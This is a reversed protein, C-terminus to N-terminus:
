NAPQPSSYSNRDSQDFRNGSSQFHSVTAWVLRLLLIAIFVTGGLTCVVELFAKVISLSALILVGDVAFSVLQPSIVPPLISRTAKKARKSVKKFLSQVFRFLLDLSSETEEDDESEGEWEVEDDEDFLAEDLQDDPSRSHCITTTRPNTYTSRSKPIQPFKLTSSTTLNPIPTLLIPPSSILTLGVM